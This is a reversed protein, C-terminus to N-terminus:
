PWGTIGAASVEHEVDFGPEPVGARSRMYLYNGRFPGTSPGARDAAPFSTGGSDASLRAALASGPLLPRSWDQIQDRHASLPTVPREGGGEPLHVNGCFRSTFNRVFRKRPFTTVTTVLVM